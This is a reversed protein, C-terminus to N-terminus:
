VPDWSKNKHMRMMNCNQANPCWSGGRAANLERSVITLIKPHPRHGNLESFLCFGGWGVGGWGANRPHNITVGM